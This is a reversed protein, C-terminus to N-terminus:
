GQHGGEGRWKGAIDRRLGLFREASRARRARREEAEPGKAKPLRHKMTQQQAVRRGGRQCASRSNGRALRSEPRQHDHAHAVGGDPNVEMKQTQRYIVIKIGRIQHSHDDIVPQDTLVFKDEEKFYEAHGCHTIRDPQTIVVHGTAVIHDVENNKTFFVTMEQCNMRFNSSFVVVNGTYVATHAVEDAHLEDSNIKTAGAPPAADPDNEDTQACVPLAVFLAAVLFLFRSKM